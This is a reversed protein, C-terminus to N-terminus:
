AIGKEKALREPCTFTGDGNNETQSKPLWVPKSLGVDLLYALKTEHRVVAAFDFLKPNDYGYSVLPDAM